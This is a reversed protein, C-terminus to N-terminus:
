CSGAARFASIGYQGSLTRNAASEDARRPLTHGHGDVIEVRRNAILPTCLRSDSMIIIIFSLRRFSLLTPLFNSDVTPRMGYKGNSYYRLRVQGGLDVEYTYTVRM